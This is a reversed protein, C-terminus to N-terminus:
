HSKKYKEILQAVEGDSKLNEYFSIQDKFLVMEDEPGHVENGRKILQSNQDSSANGSANDNAPRTQIYYVDTLKFYENDYDALKGFYVQGNTLTVAQYKASNIPAAGGTARPWLLWAGILLVSAIVFIIAAVVWWRPLQHKAKKPSRPPPTLQPERSVPQTTEHTEQHQQQQGQRAATQRYAQRTATFRGGDM